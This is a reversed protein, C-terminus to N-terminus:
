HAKAKLEAIMVNFKEVMILAGDIGINVDKVAQELEAAQKTGKLVVRQYQDRLATLENILAARTADNELLAAAGEGIFKATM